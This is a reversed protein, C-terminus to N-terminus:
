LVTLGRGRRNLSEKNGSYVAGTIQVQNTTGTDLDLASVNLIGNKDIAFTVDINPEGAKAKHIGELHFRGLSVLGESGATNLDDKQLIHIIVEEQDDEVTTFLKSQVVPYSTNAPILPVFEGLNDEIGLTHSTVDYFEIHEVAGALMGAEIAAGLAVVEDPNIDTKIEAHGFMESVMDRFGPMRSAGGALVVVDVWREEVGAKALTQLILSRIEVFLDTCIKHFAARSVVQNLHLPGAEGMTIYPILVSSENVTSLDVKVREANVQVQQLAVKDATLDVGTMEYFTTLIYQALRNDFDTGGLTTSGGTGIVRYIGKEGEMLTIDFTGGGIDLVLINEKKESRIGYALAAATPENLLKLVKLGALEGALFTAQRQNDNFYAPVTIVAAEIEQGLYERAYQVLKRLILASIEVPTYGRQSIFVQYDSGMHRKICSVTRDAKLVMQSRALEGVLVEQDNKFYVVSPTLRSGRENIVIEPKGEGNIFAVLSNTTGLDIGVIM